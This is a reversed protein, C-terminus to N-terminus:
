KATTQLRPRFKGYFVFFLIIVRQYFSLQMNAVDLVAWTLKPSSSLNTRPPSTGNCISIGVGSREEGGGGVGVSAM